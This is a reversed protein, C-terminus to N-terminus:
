LNMNYRLESLLRFINPNIHLMLQYAFKAQYVANRKKFYYMERNYVRLTCSQLTHRATHHLNYCDTDRFTNFKTIQDYHM